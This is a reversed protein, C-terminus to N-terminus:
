RARLPDFEPHRRMWTAVFGCVPVVRERRERVLELAGRVLRSGVGRGEFASPVEAHDLWLVAGTRRYDIRALEGGALPLEFRQLSANDSVGAGAAATGSQAMGVVEFGEYPTAINCACCLGIGPIKAAGSVAM